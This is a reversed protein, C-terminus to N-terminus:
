RLGPRSGLADALARSWAARGRPGLHTPDRFAERPWDLRAGDLVPATRSLRALLRQFGPERELGNGEAAAEDSLPPVAFVLAGAGLRAAVAELRSAARELEQLGVPAPSPHMPGSAASRPRAPRPAPPPDTSEPWGPPPALEEDDLARPPTRGQALVARLQDIVKVESGDLAGHPALLGPLRLLSEPV